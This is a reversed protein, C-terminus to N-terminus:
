AKTAVIIMRGSSATLSGGAADGYVETVSFKSQRLLLLVERPFLLSINAEGLVQELMVGGKFQQYFVSFNCVQNNLDCCTHVTRLLKIDGDLSVTRVSTGGQLLDVTPLCLDLVIKGGLLLLKRVNELCRLQEESSLLHLFTGRALLAVSFQSQWPFDQMDGEVFNLREKSTPPLKDRKERAIDLMYHSSDVGVVELGAGALDIALPGTGCGLDLVPGGLRLGLRRFFLIDKRGAFYDYYLSAKKGYM